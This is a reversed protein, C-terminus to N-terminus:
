ENLRSKDPVVLRKALTVEDFYRITRRNHRSSKDVEPPSTLRPSFSGWLPLVSMVSSFEVLQDFAPSFKGVEPQAGEFSKHVLNCPAINSRM